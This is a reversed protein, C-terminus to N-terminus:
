KTLVRELAEPMRWHPSRLRLAYVLANSFILACFAVWSVRPSLNFVCIICHSAVEPRM